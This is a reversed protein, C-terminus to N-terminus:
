GQGGEWGKTGWAGECIKVERAVQAAGMGRM